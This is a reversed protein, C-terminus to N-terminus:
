VNEKHTQLLKHKWTLIRSREKQSKGASFVYFFSFNHRFDIQQPSDAKTKKETETGKVFFTM